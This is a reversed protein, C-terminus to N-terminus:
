REYDFHRKPQPILEHVILYSLPGFCTVFIIPLVWLGKRGGLVWKREVLYGLAIAVLAWHVMALLVIKVILDIDM